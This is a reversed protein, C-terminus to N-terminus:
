ATAQAVVFFAYNEDRANSSFLCFSITRNSKSLSPVFVSVFADLWRCVYLYLCPAHVFVYLIAKIKNQRMLDKLNYIQNKVNQSSINLENVIKDYIHASEMMFHQEIEKAMSPITHQTSHPMRDTHTDKPETYYTLSKLYSVNRQFNSNMRARYIFPLLSSYRVYLLYYSM